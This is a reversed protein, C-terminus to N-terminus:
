DTKSVSETPQADSEELKRQLRKLLALVSRQECYTECGQKVANIVKDKSLFGVDSLNIIPCYDVLSPSFYKVTRYKDIDTLFLIWARDSNSLKPYVELMNPM